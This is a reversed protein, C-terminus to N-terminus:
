CAEQSGAFIASRKNINMLLARTTREVSKIMVRMRSTMPSNAQKFPNFGLITTIIKTSISPRSRILVGLCNLTANVLIPDSGLNAFTGSLSSHDCRNDEHFIALLRDLLGSSEAELNPPPILRHTRPVISLSIDNAEPRKVVTLILM